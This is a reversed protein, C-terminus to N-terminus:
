GRGVPHPPNGHPGFQWPWRVCGEIDRILAFEASGKLVFPLVEIDHPLLSRAANWSKGSVWVDDVLLVRRWRGLDPAPGLSRPEDFRPENSEDRYNVAVIKLGLGLHQAVLAAPVVGGSAIGVVGDLSEPFKWRKLRAVIEQLTLPTKRDMPPKMSHGSRSFAAIGFCQVPPPARALAQLNSKNARNPIKTNMQAMVDTANTAGSKRLSVTRSAATRRAIAVVAGRNMWM